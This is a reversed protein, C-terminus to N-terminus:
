KISRDRFHLFLKNQRKKYITSAGDKAFFYRCSMATTEVLDLEYVSPFNKPDCFHLHKYVEDSVAGRYEYPNSNWDARSVIQTRINKKALVNQIINIILCQLM